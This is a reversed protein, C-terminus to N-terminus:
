LTQESGLTKELEARAILFNYVSQNLNLRANTLSLQSDNIELLTGDGTDYRKVSIYYGKEAQEVGRRAAHYQKISTNMEDYYQKVTVRLNRETDDRQWEMQRIGISTQKVNSYRQGGSFLPVKLSVGVFAYPDWRYNKFRFDNAMANWLYSFSANLTPYYEAIQMEKTKKLQHYQIDLQRLDSNNTLLTDTALFNGYMETEYEAFSGICEIPRELDIGMLAKLRWHTLELSNEANYLDPEANKVNVDARIMDYESELGQEFKAEIDQYNRLANDYAERFVKVSEEAFLVSYFAQKVQNRMEIRSSRAKEVALEVDYGSIKLSKWLSASVIPVSASFGVSWTHDRGVQVGGSGASSEEEADGTGGLDMGDMYMMQKRIAYQYDGVFDIQPFLSAYTGKRAYEQREIEEGAIRVTLNKSLAIELADSLTLPLPPQIGAPETAQTLLPTALMLCLMLTPRWKTKMKSKEM